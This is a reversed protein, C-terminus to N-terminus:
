GQGHEPHSIAVFCRQFERFPHRPFHGGYAPLDTHFQRLFLAHGGTGCGLDLVSRVRRPSHRDFIRELYRCEAAYDKDRYLVDYFRAYRDFVM